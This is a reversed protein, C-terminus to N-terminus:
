INLGRSEFLILILTFVYRLEDDTLQSLEIKWENREDDTM